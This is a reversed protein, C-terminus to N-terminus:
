FGLPGAPFPVNLFRVFVAYILAMTGATTALAPVPRMREIGFTVVGLYLTLATMLGLLGALAVAVALGVIAAAVRALGGRSFEPAPGSRLGRVAVVTSLAAGVAAVWMPAFGPGPVADRQYELGTSAILLALFAMALGAGIVTDARTV